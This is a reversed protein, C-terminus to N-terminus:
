GISRRKRCGGNAAGFHSAQQQDSRWGCCSKARCFRRYQKVIEPLDNPGDAGTSTIGVREPEAFFVPYDFIERVRAWLVAEQAADIEKLRADLEKQLKKRRERDVLTIARTFQQKLAQARKRSAADLKEPERWRSGDPTIGLSELSALIPLLDARGYSAIRLDYEEHAEERQADFGPALEQHAQTRTAQWENENQATFRQLFLLSAKVTAENGSV